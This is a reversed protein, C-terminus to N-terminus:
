TSTHLIEKGRPQSGASPPQHRAPIQPDTRLHFQPAAQGTLRSPSPPVSTTSNPKKRGGSNGESSNRQPTEERWIKIILLKHTIEHCISTNLVNNAVSEVKNTAKDNRTPLSRDGPQYEQRLWPMLAHDTWFVQINPSRDADRRRACCPESSKQSGLRM